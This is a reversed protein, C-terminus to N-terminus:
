KPRGMALSARFEVFELSVRSFRIELSRMCDLVMRIGLSGSNDRFGVGQWHALERTGLPRPYPPIRPAFCGIALLRHSSADVFGRFQYGIGLLM